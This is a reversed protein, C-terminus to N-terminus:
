ASPPAVLADKAVPVVRKEAILDAVVSRVFARPYGTRKALMDVTQPEKAVASLLSDRLM